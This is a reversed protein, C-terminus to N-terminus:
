GLAIGVSIFVLAGAGTVGNPGLVREWDLVTGKCGTLGTDVRLGTWDAGAAARGGLGGRVGGV